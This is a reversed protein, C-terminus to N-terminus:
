DDLPERVEYRTKNNVKQPLEKIQCQKQRCEAITMSYPAWQNGDFYFTKKAADEMVIFKDGFRTPVYPPVYAEQQPAAARPRAPFNQRKPNPRPRQAMRSQREHPVPPAPFFEAARLLCPPALHCGGISIERVPSAVDAAVTAVAAATDAAAVM